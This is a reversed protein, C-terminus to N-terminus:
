SKGGRREHLGERSIGYAKGELQLVSRIKYVYCIFWLLVYLGSPLQVFYCLTFVAFFFYDQWELTGVAVM